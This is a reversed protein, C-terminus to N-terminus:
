HASTGNLIHRLDSALSYEVRQMVIPSHWGDPPFGNELWILFHSNQNQEKWLLRGDPATLTSSSTLEFVWQQRGHYTGSLAATKQVLAIRLTADTHTSTQLPKARVSYEKWLENFNSAVARNMEDGDILDKGSADQVQISITRVQALYPPLPPPPVHQPPLFCAGIGIIAIACAIVFMRKQLMAIDCPRFHLQTDSTDSEV